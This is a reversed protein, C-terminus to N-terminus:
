AYIHPPYCLGDGGGTLLRNWGLVFGGGGGGEIERAREM